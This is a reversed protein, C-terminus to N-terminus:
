APTNTPTPAQTDSSQPQDEEEKKLEDKKKHLDNLTQQQQMMLHAWQLKSEMEQIELNRGIVGPVNKPAVKGMQCELSTIAIELELAEKQKRYYPLMLDLRNEEEVLKAKMDAESVPQQSMAQEAQQNMQSYQQKIQSPDIKVEQAQPTFEQTAMYNIQNYLKVFTCDSYNCFM